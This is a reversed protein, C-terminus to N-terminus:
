QKDMEQAPDPSNKTAATINSDSQLNLSDSLILPQMQYKEIKTKVLEGWKNRNRKATFMVM